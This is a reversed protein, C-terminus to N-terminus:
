AVEEKYVEIRSTVDSKKFKSILNYNASDKSWFGTSPKYASLDFHLYDVGSLNKWVNLEVKPYQSQLEEMYALNEVTNKLYTFFKSPIKVKGRRPIATGTVTKFTGLNFDGYYVTVSLDTDNVTYKLGEVGECLSSIESKVEKFDEDTTQAKVLESLTGDKQAKNIDILSVYFGNIYVQFRRVFRSEIPEEAIHVTDSLYPEIVDFAEIISLCYNVTNDIMFDQYTSIQIDKWFIKVDENKGDFEVKVNEFDALAAKAIEADYRIFEADSANESPVIVSKKATELLTSM